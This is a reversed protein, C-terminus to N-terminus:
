GKFGTWAAVGSWGFVLVALRGLVADCPVREADGSAVALRWGVVPPAVVHLGVVCVVVGSVGVERLEEAVVVRPDLVVHGLAPIRVLPLILLQARIILLVILKAVLDRIRM